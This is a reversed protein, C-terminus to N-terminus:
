DLTVVGYRVALILAQMRSEVGLKGFLHATHSKVTEIGVGLRLAIDKDGLGLGLLELVQRERATLRALSMRVDRERAQVECCRLWSTRRSWFSVPVCGGSRQSSM